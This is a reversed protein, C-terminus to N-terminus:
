KERKQHESQCRCSTASIRDFRFARGGFLGFCRSVIIIFIFRRIIVPTIQYKVTRARAIRFTHRLSDSSCEAAIKDFHFGFRGVVRIVIGHQLTRLLFLRSDLRSIKRRHFGRDLTELLIVNNKDTIRDPIAVHCRRHLGEQMFVRCFKCALADCQECGASAASYRSRDTVGPFM